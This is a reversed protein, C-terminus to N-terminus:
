AESPRPTADDQRGPDPTSSAAVITANGSDQTPPVPYSMHKASIIIARADDELTLGKPSLAWEWYSRPVLNLPVGAYKGFTLAAFTSGADGKCWAFKGEDDIANLDRPFQFAHLEDLTLPLTAKDRELHAMVARCTNQIDVDARHAGELTEGLMVRVYDTLTRPDTLQWLKFGDLVRPKPEGPALATSIGARKFEAKLLPMDYRAVNYGGIDAGNFARRIGPAISAFTPADKVMEDTINHKETAEPPIPVGPNVFTQFTIPGTMGPKFQIIGIEVIRATLPDKGTSELDVWTFPRDLPFPLQLM